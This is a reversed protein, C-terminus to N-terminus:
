SNMTAPILWATYNSSGPDSATIVTLTQGGNAAVSIPMVSMQYLGPDWIHTDILTWTGAVGNTFPGTGWPHEAVFTYWTRPEGSGGGVGGGIYIYQGFYPLYQM